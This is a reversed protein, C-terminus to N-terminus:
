KRSAKWPELLTREFWDDIWKDSNKGNWDGGEDTRTHNLSWDSVTEDDNVFLNVQAFGRYCRDSDHFKLVPLDDLAEVMDKVEKYSTSNEVELGEESYVDISFGQALAEKILSLYAKM